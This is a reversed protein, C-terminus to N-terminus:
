RPPTLQQRLDAHRVGDDRSVHIFSEERALRWPVVYLAQGPELGGGHPVASLGERYQGRIRRDYQVSRYISLGGVAGVPERHQRRKGAPRM